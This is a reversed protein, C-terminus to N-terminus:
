DRSKIKEKTQPGTQPLLRLTPPVQSSLYRKPTNPPLNKPKQGRLKKPASKPLFIPTTNKALMQTRSDYLLSFLFRTHATKRHKMDLSQPSVLLGETRLPSLPLLLSLILVKVRNMLTAEGLISFAEKRFTMEVDGKTVIEKKLAKVEEPVDMSEFTADYSVGQFFPISFRPGQGAAPSLVRHTTAVCVGGTMAELGQGMAVVLTGPIPTCDIWEGKSNQVQLGPHSTAQLLFSSLM